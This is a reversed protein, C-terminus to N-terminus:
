TVADALAKCADYVEDKRADTMAMGTGKDIITIPNNDDDYNQIIRLLQELINMANGQDTSKAQIKGKLTAITTNLETEDYVM